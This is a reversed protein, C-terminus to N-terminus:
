APFDWLPVCAPSPYTVSHLGSEKTSVLKRPRNDRKSDKFQLGFENMWENLWEDVWEKMWKVSTQPADIQPLWQAVIYTIPVTVYLCVLSPLSTVAM